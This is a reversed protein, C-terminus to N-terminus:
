GQANVERRVTALEQCHDDDLTPYQSSGSRLAHALTVLTLDGADLHQGPTPLEGAPLNGCIARKMLENLALLSPANKVAQGLETKFGPANWYPGFADSALEEVSPADPGPHQKANEQRMMLVMTNDFLSEHFRKIAEQLEPSLKNAVQEDFVDM